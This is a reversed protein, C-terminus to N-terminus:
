IPFVRISAFDFKVIAIHDSRGGIKGLCSSFFIVDPSILERVNAFM